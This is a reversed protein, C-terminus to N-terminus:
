LPSRGLQQSAGARLRYACHLGTLLPACALSPRAASDGVSRPCLQSLSRVRPCAEGDDANNPLERVGGFSADCCSCESIAIKPFSTPSRPSSGFTGKNPCSGYFSASDFTAFFSPM